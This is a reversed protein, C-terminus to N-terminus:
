DIRLPRAQIAEISVEGKRHLMESIRGQEDDSLMFVASPRATHIPANDIPVDRLPPEISIRAFNDRSVFCDDVVIGLYRYGNTLDFSVYQGAKLVLEGFSKDSAM